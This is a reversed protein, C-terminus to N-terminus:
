SLDNRVTSLQGAENLLKLQVYDHRMFTDTRGPSIEDAKEFFENSILM